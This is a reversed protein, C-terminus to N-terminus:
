AEAKAEEEAPADKDKKKFSSKFAEFKASMKSRREEIKKKREDSKEKRLRARTQHELDKQIEIAEAVEDAVVAADFRAIEDQFKSLRGDLWSEDTEDALAILAIEGEILKTGVTDLLADSMVADQTDILSGALMGYSGMLLVGLPGGLIGVLAGVLGGVMMDDTTHIGSDFRDCVTLGQETRKVLAMQLITAQDSVPQNRLETMAQYGESEVAFVVALINQM